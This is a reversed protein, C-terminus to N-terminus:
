GAGEVAGERSTPNEVPSTASQRRGSRAMAVAIVVGTGVSLGARDVRLPVHSAVAAIARVADLLLACPGMVLAGARIPLWGALPAAVMGYMTLPEALPAALLNAGLGALPFSGFEVVLLPAVAIQAAATVALAERAALPGRLRERIPGAFLAIGGTAVVSLRFGVSGFLDADWALLAYVALLLSRLPTVSRGSMRAAMVVAAMASARLVSPEFRTAAAFVLVVLGGAISRFVIPSRRLAPGVLALVFAVNAGSVALLHTLGAARFQEITIRDIARTDGLLFGLLLARDRDAMRDAGGEVAGRLQDGARRYWQTAPRLALLADVEIEAAAPPGSDFRDRVAATDVRGVLDVRDGLRLLALRLAVRESARLVVTREIKRDGVRVTTAPVSQAFPHGDPDAQLIVRMPIAYRPPPEGDWIARREAVAGAAVGFVLSAAVVLAPRAAPAVFVVLILTGLGAARWLTAPFEPTALDRGIQSGGVLVAVAIVPM